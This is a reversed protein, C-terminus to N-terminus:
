ALSLIVACCCLCAFAAVAGNLGTLRVLLCVCPGEM